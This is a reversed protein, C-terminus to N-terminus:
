SQDAHDSYGHAVLVTLLREEWAQEDLDRRRHRQPCQWNPPEDGVICGGLALEGGAAADRAEQVPLGFLLPVGASGCTPCASIVNLPYQRVDSETASLAARRQIQVRGDSFNRPVERAWALPGDYARDPSQLRTM